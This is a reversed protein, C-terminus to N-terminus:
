RREGEREREGEASEGRHFGNRAYGTRTVPPGAPAHPAGPSFSFLLFFSNADREKQNEKRRPGSVRASGSRFGRRCIRADARVLQEDDDDINRAVNREGASRPRSPFAPTV